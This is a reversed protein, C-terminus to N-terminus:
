SAAMVIGHVAKVNEIAIGYSVLGIVETDVSGSIRGDVVEVDSEKVFTGLEETDVLLTTGSTVQSTVYVKANEFMVIPHMVAIGSGEFYPKSGPLTQNIPQNANIVYLATKFDTDQKLKAYDVTNFIIARLVYDNATFSGIADLLKAYTIRTSSGGTATRNANASSVVAEIATFVDSDIKRALAKGIRKAEKTVLSVMGRKVMEWTIKSAALRKEPTVTVSSYGASTYTVTGGESVTAATVKSDKPLKIAGKGMGNMLDTNIQLLDMATLNPEVAERIVSALATTYLASANSTSIDEKLRFAEKLSFGKKAMDDCVMKGISECLRNSNEFAISNEKVIGEM